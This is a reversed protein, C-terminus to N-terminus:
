PNLRRPTRTAPVTVASSVHGDRAAWRGALTHLERGAVLSGAVPLTVVLTGDDPQISVQADDFGLWRRALPYWAKYTSEKACFLVRDWAPGTAPLTALHAREPATVVRDFVTPSLPEDPEADIGVSALYWSRAVVAAHYGSTHTLSGVIGPPWIPARDPGNIIAMPAVDLRALALRACHRVTTYERRRKPAARRLAAQEAPFVLPDAPEAHLEESAVRAAVDPVLEHIM